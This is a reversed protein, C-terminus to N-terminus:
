SLLSVCVFLRNYFYFMVDYSSLSAPVVVVRGSGYTVCVYQIFCVLSSFPFHPRLLITRMMFYRLNKKKVVVSSQKNINQAIIAYVERKGPIM